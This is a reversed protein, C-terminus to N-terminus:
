FAEGMTFYVGKIKGEGFGMDMRINIHEKRVMMCRFGIGYNPKISSLLDKADRGVQGGGAFVTMGLPGWITKRMEVQAASMLHDRFRGNYYGRMIMDNGMTGMLRYPVEGSNFNGYAQIALVNKKWLCVYKRADIILNNFSYNGLLSKNYWLNSVEIYAGHVPYYIHDRNDYAMSFGLGLATFGNIGLVGSNPTISSSKFSLDFLRDYQFQFGTYLNKVVQRTLKANLRHLKFDYNEKSVESAKNGIGWYNENFNNYIFQAKLNYKNQGFFIDVTPRVSLQHYQTFQTNFRLLSPRTISDHEVKFIIGLSLGLRWGTEPALGWIPLVFWYKKKPNASDGEIIKYVKDTFIELKNKQARGSSLLLFFFSLLLLYKKM